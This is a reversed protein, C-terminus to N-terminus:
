RRGGRLWPRFGVPCSRGPRFAPARRRPTPAASSATQRMAEEVKELWRVLFPNSEPLAEAPLRRWAEADGAAWDTLVRWARALDNAPNLVLAADFARAAAEFDGIEYHARGEILRVGPRGPALDAARRAHVRAEEARGACALTLALHVRLFPDDPALAIAASFRDAAADLDGAAALAQASRSM